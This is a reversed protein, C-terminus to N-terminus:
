QREWRRLRAQLTAVAASGGSFDRGQAAGMTAPDTYSVSPDVHDLVWLMDNLCYLEPQSTWHDTPDASRCDWAPSTSTTTGSSGQVLRYFQLITWRGTGDVGANAYAALLAPPMYWRTNKVAMRYCALKPDHCRGGIVDYVYSVYPSAIPYSNSQPEYDRGYSFCGDVLSAQLSPVLTDGQYSFLGWARTFGHAAFAQVSGCTESQQDAPPLTALDRTTMGRSTLTWGYTDRLTALEDWTAYRITGGCAGVQSVTANSTAAIGRAALLDAITFLSVAGPRLACGATASGIMSRGFLVTLYGPQPSPPPATPYRIWLKYPTAGHAAGVRVRYQGPTADKVIVQPMEAGTASAVQQYSGGVRRLLFLNLKAGPDDWELRVAIPGTATVSFTQLVPTGAAVTGTLPLEGARAATAPALWAAAAAAVAIAFRLRGGRMATLM